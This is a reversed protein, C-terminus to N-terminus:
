SNMCRKRGGAGVAGNDQKISSGEVSSMEFALSAKQVGLKSGKTSGRGLQARRLGTQVLPTTGQIPLTADPSGKTTRKRQSSHADAFATHTVASAHRNSQSCM